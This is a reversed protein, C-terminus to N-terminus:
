KVVARDFRAIVERARARSAEYRPEDPAASLVVRYHEVARNLDGMQEAVLALNMHSSLHAPDRALVREYESAADAWRGRRSYMVAIRFHPEPDDPRLAAATQYAALAEDLRGLGDLAAGLNVRAPYSDAQRVVLSEIVVRAEAWRELRLLVAGFALRGRDNSPDIALVRRYREAAEDLRDLRELLAGSRMWATALDPDEALLRDYLELARDTRGQQEYVKGLSVAASAYRPELSLATEFATEARDFDGLKAFVFGVNNHAQSFGPVLRISREFLDRAEQLRDAEALRLGKSNLALISDPYKELVDDWLRDPNVWVATQRADALVAAVALGLVLVGLVPRAFRVREWRRLALVAFRGALWALAVGSLYVRNDQYLTLRSVFPLAGLPALGAWFWALCWGVLRDVRAAVITLLVVAVAGAALLVGETTGITIPWAHDVALATPWFWHGLSALLIKVGFLLAQATTAGDGRLATASGDGTIWTRAALFVGALLWWPLSRRLTAGWLERGDGRARDWAIILVPLVVAVEKTGLAALGLGYPLALRLGHSVKVLAHRWGDSGAGGDRGHDGRRLAVDHAWVAALVFLTMLTSSRATIYNVAEANIPHLAFVGAAVIGARDDGWLRRALIFTVIVVGLHIALNTAHFGAPGEGWLAHDLAYGAVAVPRYNAQDRSRSVAYPSTFWSGARALSAVAPNNRVTDLDDFVFGNDIVGRYAVCTVVLIALLALWAPPLRRVTTLVGSM